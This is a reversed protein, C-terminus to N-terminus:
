QQRRFQRYQAFMEDLEVKMMDGHKNELILVTEDKDGVIFNAPKFQKLIKFV